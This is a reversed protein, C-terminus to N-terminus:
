RIASFRFADTSIRAVAVFLKGAGCSDAGFRAWLAPPHAKLTARFPPLAVNEAWIRILPSCQVSFKNKWDNTKQNVSRTITAVIFLTATTILAGL